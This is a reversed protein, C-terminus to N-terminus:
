TPHKFERQRAFDRYETSTFQRGNDTIVNDPIGHRAFISKTHAIIASSTTETLLSVELYSTFYDVTLLYDRGNMRFLDCAVRSWAHTAPPLLILPKRQQKRRSQICTECRLVMDAIESTMGPWFPCERARTKCREIGLHSEHIRAKMEKGMSSTVIIRIGKLLIVQGETIEDLHTLYPKVVNPILSKNPPPGHHIFCKM